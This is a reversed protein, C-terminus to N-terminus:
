RVSHGLRPSGPDIHIKTGAGPSIEGALAEAAQEQGVTVQVSALRIWGATPM